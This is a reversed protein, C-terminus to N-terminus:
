RENNENNGEDWNLYIFVITGSKRQENAKSVNKEQVPFIKKRLLHYEGDEFAWIFYWQLNSRSFPFWKARQIEVANECGGRWWM